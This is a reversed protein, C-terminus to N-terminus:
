PVPTFLLQELCGRQATSWCSGGAGWTVSGCALIVALAVLALILILVRTKHDDNERRTKGIKGQRAGSLGVAGRRVGGPRTGSRRAKGLGAAGLGAECRRTEGLRAAEPRAIIGEM